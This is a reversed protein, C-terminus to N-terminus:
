SIINFNLSNIIIQFSGQILLRELPEELLNFLFRLISLFERFLSKEIFSAFSSFYEFTKGFEPAFILYKKFIYPLIALIPDWFGKLFYSVVAAADESWYILFILPRNFGYIDGLLSGRTVVLHRVYIIFNLVCFYYISYILLYM